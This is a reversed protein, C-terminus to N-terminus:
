QVCNELDEVSLNQAWVALPTIRMMSGNSMSTAGKGDRAAQQSVAPDPSELLTGQPGLGSRTTSGVDFPGYYIWYGYYLALHFPDLKGQGAVLGRLQCMALESDDTIQGPALGWHGGGPM